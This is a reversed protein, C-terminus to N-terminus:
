RVTDGLASLWPSAVALSFPGMGAQVRTLVDTAARRADAALAEPYALEIRHQEFEDTDVLEVGGGSWVVVDFDLDVMWVGREDWVTPTVVDIYIDLRPHGAVFHAMFWDHRPICWVVPHEGIFVTEDGRHVPHGPGAGAWLGHDDEGLVVGEAGYHPADPWKRREVRVRTGVAPTM